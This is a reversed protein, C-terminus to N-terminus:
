SNNEKSSLVIIHEWKNYYENYKNFIEYDCETRITIGQLKTKCQDILSTSGLLVTKDYYIIMRDTDSIIINLNGKGYPHENVVRLVVDWLTRNEFPYRGSKHPIPAHLTKSLFEPPTIDCVEVHVYELEPYNELLGSYEIHHELKKIDEFNDEPIDATIKIQVRM